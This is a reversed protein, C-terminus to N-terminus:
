FVRSLVFIQAVFGAAQVISLLLLTATVHVLAVSLWAL